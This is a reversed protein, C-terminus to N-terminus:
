YNYGGGATPAHTSPPVGSKDVMATQWTFDTGDFSDSEGNGGTEGAEHDFSFTYLPKDDFTVQTEGAPRMVTGLRDTLQDPGTPTQDANVTLPIWIATCDSSKCLVEGDEQDSVYLTLGDATALVGTQGSADNVMVTPGSSGADATGDTGRDSGSSGCGALTLASIAVAPVATRLRWTPNTKRTSM